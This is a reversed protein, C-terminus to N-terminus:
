DDAAFLNYIHKLSDRLGMLVCSSRVYDRFNDKLFCKTLKIDMKSGEKAWYIQFSGSYWVNWDHLMIVENLIAKQWKWIILDVRLLWFNVYSSYGFSIPQLHNRFTLGVLLCFHPHHLRVRRWPCLGPFFCVLPYGRPTDLGRVVHMKSGPLVKLDGGRELIWILCFCSVFLTGHGPPLWCLILVAPPCSPWWFYGDDSHEIALVVLAHIRIGLLGNGPIKRPIQRFLYIHCIHLTIAELM